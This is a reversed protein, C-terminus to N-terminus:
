RLEDSEDVAETRWDGGLARILQVTNLYRDRRIQVDRRRNGLLQREADIVVLYNVLGGEFQIRSLEYVRESSELAQGNATVRRALAGDAALASEVEAFAQLITARYDLLTERYQAEALDINALVRGGQFLPVGISAGWAGSFNSRDFLENAEGSSFGADASLSIRPFLDGKAVGIRANAQRLEEEATRIDPRRQLLLSPVTAPIVPPQAAVKTEALPELRFNAPTRGLQIALANEAAIRDQDLSHLLAENENKLATAQVLPLRSILGAKFQAGLIRLEDENIELTRRILAIEEDLFRLGFYALAVDAELALRVAQEDFEAAGLGAESAEYARRVRGFLDLEYSLMLPARFSDSVRPGGDPRPEIYQRREGSASFSLSPFFGGRVSDLRARAQEVREVAALMELNEERAAAIIENLRADGFSEWWRGDDPYTAGDAEAAYRFQADEPGEPREYDPGIACASVALVLAITLIRFIM